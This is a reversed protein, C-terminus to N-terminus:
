NCEDNIRDEKLLTQLRNSLMERLHDPNKYLLINDGQVDFHVKNAEFEAKKCTFVIQIPHNCMRLGEAIGAEYYVGTCNHTLDAVMFIANSIRKRIQDIISGTFQQEDIRIVQLGLKECAPKYVDNYISDMDESFRMAVFASKTLNQTPAILAGYKKEYIQRLAAKVNDFHSFNKVRGHVRLGFIDNQNDAYLENTKLIKEAELRWAAVESKDFSDFKIMQELLAKESEM